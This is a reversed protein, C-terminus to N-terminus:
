STAAALFGIFEKTLEPDFQQGAQSSIERVAEGVTFRRRYPRDTILADFVDALATLRCLFPIDEGALGRPYGQGDWREHHLLIIEKERPKLALPEVIKEGVLPHTNIIKREEPTLPGPKLLIADSIGIKGIDHLYVANRLIQVDEADLALFGAFRAAIETVRASHQGTYPDRAALTRLLANIIEPRFFTCAPELSCKFPQAAATSRRPGSPVLDARPFSLVMPKSLIVFVESQDLRRLYAFM